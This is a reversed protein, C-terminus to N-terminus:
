TKIIYQVYINRSRTENGGESSTPFNYDEPLSGGDRATDVGGTSTKGSVNHSHSKFQDPQKTGVNDGTTGDGRDTRSASDPDNGASNDWGRLFEGRYDPLNFTSGDVNGYETGIVAFLDSYTTRSVSAGNAALYGTPVTSTTWAMVTATPVFSLINKNWPSMLWAGTGSEAATSYILEVRENAIIEGGILATDDPRKINKVGIASMNATAPGTNANATVFTIRMGDVYTDPQVLTGTRSLVYADAVGSDSYDHATQGSITQSTALQDTTTTLTLGAATIATQTENKFSNFETATYSSGITKDSINM